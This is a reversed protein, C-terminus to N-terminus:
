GATGEVFQQARTDFASALQASQTEELVQLLARFQAETWQRKVLAQLLENRNSPWRLKQPATACMRSSCLCHLTVM